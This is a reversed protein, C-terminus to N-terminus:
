PNYGEDVRIQGVMLCHDIVDAESKVESTYNLGYPWFHQTDANLMDDPNGTIMRLEATAHEGTFIGNVVLSSWKPATGVGVTHSIEHMATIYEMYDKGGFRINGNFNGDATQVSPDYTVTDAKTINTYCNYYQVAKDMAPEILDYAAQQDSTPSAAKTLTYTVHGSAPCAGMGGMGAAPAGGAGAGGMSRGPRGGPGTAATPCNAEGGCPLGGAGNARGAGGSGLAGVGGGGLPVGGAGSDMASKGASGGAGSGMEASGGAATNTGASGSVSGGAGGSTSSQGGSGTSGGQGAANQHAGGDSPGPAGSSGNGAHSERSDGFDNSSSGCAAVVFAVVATTLALRIPM